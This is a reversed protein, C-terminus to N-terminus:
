RRFYRLVGMRRPEGTADVALTGAAHLHADQIHNHADQTHTHTAHDAAAADDFVFIGTGADDLREIVTHATVVTNQNVATAAQNTPTTNATSGSIGPATAALITGPGAAISEHYVGAAGGNEDAPTIATEALDAGSLTLYTTAAGDCLIFGAGLAVLSDVIYGGGGDTIAWGSGSWRCIHIYVSPFYLFGADSTGLDTPRNAFAASYMGAAYEWSLVGANEELIYLVTRDTEWFLTGVPSNAAPYLALRNAHTDEIVVGLGTAPLLSQLNLPAIGPAELQASILPALEAALANLNLPPPPPPPEDLTQNLRRFLRELREPSKFDEITFQLAHM